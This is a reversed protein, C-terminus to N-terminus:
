RLVFSLDIGSFFGYVVISTVVFAATFIGAWWVAILGVLAGLEANATSAWLYGACVWVIVFAGLAVPFAFIYPFAFGLAIASGLLVINYINVM